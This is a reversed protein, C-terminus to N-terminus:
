TCGLSAAETSQSRAISLIDSPSISGQPGTFILHYFLPGRVLNMDQAVQRGASETFSRTFGSAGALQPTPFSIMQGSTQGAFTLLNFYGLISV